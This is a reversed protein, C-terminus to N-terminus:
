DAESNKIGTRKWMKKYLSLFRWNAAKRAGSAEKYARDDPATFKIMEPQQQRAPQMAMMPAAVPVVSSEGLGITQSRAAKFKQVMRNSWDRFTQMAPDNINLFPAETKFQLAQEQYDHYEASTQFHKRTLSLSQQFSSQKTFSDERESREKMSLLEGKSCNPCKRLIRHCRSCVPIGCEENTCFYVNSGNYNFLSVTEVCSEHPRRLSM